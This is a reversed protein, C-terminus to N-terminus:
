WNPLAESLVTRKEALQSSVVSSGVPLAHSVSLSAPDVLPSIRECSTAEIWARM